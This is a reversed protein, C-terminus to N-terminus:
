LKTSIGEIDGKLLKNKVLGEKKISSLKSELLVKISKKLM